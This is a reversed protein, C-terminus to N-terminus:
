MQLRALQTFYGGGIKLIACGARGSIFFFFGGLPTNKKKKVWVRHTLAPPLGGARVSYFMGLASRKCPMR